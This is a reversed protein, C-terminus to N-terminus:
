EFFTMANDSLVPTKRVIYGNTMLPSSHGALHSIDTVSVGLDSLLTCFTVRASHSSLCEWKEKTYDKGGKHIAVRANIGARRALRRVIANYTKLPLDLAMRNVKEIMREIRESVPITAVIHTKQSSYTLQKGQVNESRVQIMDSHRMGTRASIVFCDRVYEENDSRVRVNEFAALEESTLYTKISKDGKLHFVSPFDKYPILDEEEFRHLFAALTAAVTKASSPALTCKLEDQLAMLNVKTLSGWQEIGAAALHKILTKSQAGTHRTIAEYLTM